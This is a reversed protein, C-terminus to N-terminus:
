TGIEASSLHHVRALFPPIWASTAYNTYTTLCFGVLVIVFTKQSALFALTPALAERRIKEM